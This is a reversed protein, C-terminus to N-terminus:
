DLYQIRADLSPFVEETFIWSLLSYFIMLMWVPLGLIALPFNVVMLFIGFVGFITM